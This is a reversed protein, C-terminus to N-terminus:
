RARPPQGADVPRSTAFRDSVRRMRLMLSAPPSVSADLYATVEDATVGIRSAFDEPTLTSRDLLMQIHRAVELREHAELQSRSRDLVEILAKAIGAPRTGHVIQEIQRATTGYPDRKIAAALLKWVAIDDRELASRVRVTTWSDLPQDADLPRNRGPERAPLPAPGPREAAM